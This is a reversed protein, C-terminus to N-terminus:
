GQPAIYVWKTYVKDQTTTVTIKLGQPTKNGTTNTNPFFTYYEGGAYFSIKFDKVNSLIIDDNWKGYTMNTFPKIQRKLVGNEFIYQTDSLEYKNIKSIIGINTIFRVYTKDDGSYGILYEESKDYSEYVMNTIDNEIKNLFDFIQHKENVKIISSKVNISTNISQTATLIILSLITMSILVEILTFGKNNM